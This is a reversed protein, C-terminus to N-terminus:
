SRARDVETESAKAKQDFRTPLMEFSKAEVLAVVVNAARGVKKCYNRAATLHDNTLFFEAPGHLLGRGVVGLVGLKSDPEGELLEVVLYRRNM